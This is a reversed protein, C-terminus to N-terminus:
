NTTLMAQNKDVNDQFLGCRRIKPFYQATTLNTTTSSNIAGSNVADITTASQNSMDCEDTVATWFEGFPQNWVDPVATFLGGWYQETQQRNSFISEINLENDPQTDFFNKKCGTQITLATALFLSTYLKTTRKM